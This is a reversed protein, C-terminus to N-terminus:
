MPHKSKQAACAALAMAQHMEDSEEVRRSAVVLMLLNAESSHEDSLMLHAVRVAAKIQTDFNYGWPTHASEKKM